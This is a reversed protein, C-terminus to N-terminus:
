KIELRRGRKRDEAVPLTINLVGEEMRAEAKEIDVYDPLPITRYFSGYRRETRRFGQGEGGESREERREGQIVLSGDQVDIKVNDKSIGPLDVRVQVQNGEESVDVEPAWLTPMSARQSRGRMPTGYFFSDFLRDMEESIGQMLAFPNRGYPTMLGQRREQLTGGQQRQQTQLGQGQGSSPQVGSQQSQQESGQLREQQRQSEDTADSEMSTRENAM